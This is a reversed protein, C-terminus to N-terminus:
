NSHYHLSKQLVMIPSFSDQGVQNFLNELTTSITSGNLYFMIPIQREEFHTYIYVEPLSILGFTSTLYLFLNTMKWCRAHHQVNLLYEIFIQQLIKYNIYKKDKQTQIYKYTQHNTYGFRSSQFKLISYHVTICFKKKEQLLLILGQVHVQSRGLPLGPVYSHAFLVPSYM